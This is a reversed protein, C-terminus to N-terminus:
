QTIESNGFNKTTMNDTNKLIVLCEAAMDHLAQKKETFGAMIYGIGFTIISFIKCFYRGTALGFNIKGRELDIVKIGLAMKGFTGQTNSSEMLAFYIWPGIYIPLFTLVAILESTNMDPHIGNAISIQVPAYFFIFLVIVYGLFLIVGDILYAASRRWFGAYVM